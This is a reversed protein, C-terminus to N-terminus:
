LFASAASGKIEGRRDSLKLGGATVGPSWPNDPEPVNSGLTEAAAQGYSAFASPATGQVDPGGVSVQKPVPEAKSQPIHSTASLV